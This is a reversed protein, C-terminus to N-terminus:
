QASGLSCESARNGTCWDRAVPSTLAFCTAVSGPLKLACCTGIAPVNREAPSRFLFSRRRLFTLLEIPRRGACRREPAFEVVRGDRISSIPRTWSTVIAHPVRCPSSCRSFVPSFKSPLLQRRFPSSPSLSNQASSLISSNKKKKAQTHSSVEVQEEGVVTSTLRNLSKRKKGEEERFFLPRTLFFFSREEENKTKTKKRRPKFFSFAFLYLFAGAKEESTEAKREGGVPSFRVISRAPAGEGRSSRHYAADLYLLFFSTNKKM